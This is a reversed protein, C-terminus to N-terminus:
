DFVENLADVALDDIEDIVRSYLDMTIGIKSHGLRASVIKPHIGKALLITAHTHRLDHFRIDPLDAKKLAKKLGRSLESSIMINGNSNCFVLDLPNYTKGLEKKIIEQEQKIKELLATLGNTMKLTRIKGGKPTNSFNYKGNSYTITHMITIRKSIFNIDNWRLGIIESKRMGTHAATYISPYYVKTSEEAVKLLTILQDERLTLWEVKQPKPADVDILVNESIFKKRVAFNFMSSLLRHHHRVTQFSLTKVKETYYDQVQESSITSLKYKGFYPILHNTLISLYGDFTRPKTKIQAYSEFWYKTYEDFTKEIKNSIKKSDIEGLLKSQVREAQPKGKIGKQVKRIRKGNADKGAEATVTYLGNWKGDVMEKRIAMENEGRNGM